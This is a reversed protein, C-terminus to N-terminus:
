AGAIHRKVKGCYELSVPNMRKASHGANYKLITGCTTGDGLKQAKALYKMGYKINTEPDFLGATSGSYGMMRATAPKIQMLGVEGARGRADPRYNSEVRVVAHAFSVSIGQQVAYREIITRYAQKPDEVTAAESAVKESEIIKGEVAAAKKLADYAEEAAKGIGAGTIDKGTVTETKSAGAVGGKGLSAYIDQANAAFTTLAAVFTAALITLKTM